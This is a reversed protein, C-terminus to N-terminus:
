FSKVVSYKQSIYYVLDLTIVKKTLRIFLNLTEELSNWHRKQAHDNSKWYSSASKYFKTIARLVSGRLFHHKIIYGAQDPFINTENFSYETTTIRTSDNRCKRKFFDYSYVIRRNQWIGKKKWWIAACLILKNNLLPYHKKTSMKFQKILMKDTDESNNIVLGM